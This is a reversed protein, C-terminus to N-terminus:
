AGWICAIAIGFIIVVILGTLSMFIRRFVLAIDPHNWDLIMYLGASTLWVFVITAGLTGLIRELM